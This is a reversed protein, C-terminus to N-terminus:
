EDLYAYGVTVHYRHNVPKKDADPRYRHVGPWLYRYNAASVEAGAPWAYQSIQFHEKLLERIELMYEHAHHKPQDVENQDAWANVEVTGDMDSVPGAGSGKMHTMGTRGGGAPIENDPGFTVQPNSVGENHWGTDIDPRTLSGDIGGNGWEERLLERLVLKPDDRRTM